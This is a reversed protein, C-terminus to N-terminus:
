PMERSAKSQGAAARELEATPPFVRFYFARSAYAMVPLTLLLLPLLLASIMIVGALLGAWCMVVPFRWFVARVSAVVGPVLSARGDYILPISFASIAFLIFALGAGMISSFFVFNAVSADVPLLRAFGLPERGVMFGYLTGADTLWILFLLACVFSVVWGGRPMRRFGKGIDAARPMGGSRLRDSVSFYGALLIPGVLMFGGALSLSLPAISFAELALFLLAGLIVFVMAYAISLAPAARFQKLGAAVSTALDHLSVRAPRLAAASASTHAEPASASM